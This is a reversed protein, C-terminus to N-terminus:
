AANKRSKEAYMHADAAAVLRELDCATGPLLESYGVSYSIRTPLLGSRNAEGVAVQLRDILTTLSTVPAAALVVFEDGGMRAVLDSRRFTTVLLDAFTRIVVSGIGHGHEDNIRKLHDLDFFFATVPSQAREASRVIYKAVADFGRRNLVGTLGDTLSQHRLQRELQNSSRAIWGIAFAVGLVLVPVAIAVGQAASVVGIENLRRLGVFLAFPTLTLWPLMIRTLRTGVGPDVLFSFIGGAEARRLAMVLVLGLLCFVIHPAGLNTNGLGLFETVNFLLSGLLFLTFAVAALTGLDAVRSRWGTRSRILVLGIAALVSFFLSQPAPRAPFAPVYPLVHLYTLVAYAPLAFLFLAVGLAVRRLLPSPEPIAALTLCLSGGFVWVAAIPRMAQWEGGTLLGFAHAAWAVLVVVAVFSIAVLVGREFRHLRAGNVVEEALLPDTM